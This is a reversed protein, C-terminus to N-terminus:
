PFDASFEFISLGNGVGGRFFYLNSKLIFKGKTQSQYSIPNNSNELTSKQIHM